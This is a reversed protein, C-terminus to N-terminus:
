LARRRRYARRESKPVELSVSDNRAVPVKVGVAVPADAVPPVIVVMVLEASRKEKVLGAPDIGGVPLMM